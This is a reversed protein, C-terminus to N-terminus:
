CEAILLVELDKEIKRQGSIASLQKEYLYCLYAVCDFPIQRNNGTLSQIQRPLPLFCPLEKRAVPPRSKFPGSGAKMKIQVTIIFRHLKTHNALKKGTTLHSSLPGSRM